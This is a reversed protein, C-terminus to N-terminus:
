LATFIIWRNKMFYDAAAVPRLARIRRMPFLSMLVLTDIHSDTDDGREILAGNKDFDSWSM